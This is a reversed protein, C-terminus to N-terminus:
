LIGRFHRRTRPCVSPARVVQDPGQGFFCLELRIEPPIVKEAGAPSAPIERFPADKRKGCVAGLCLMRTLTTIYSTLTPTQPSHTRSLTPTSSSPNCGAPKRRRLFCAASSPANCSRAGFRPQLVSRSSHLKM